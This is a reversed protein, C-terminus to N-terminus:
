KDTVGQMGQVNGEEKRWARAGRAGGRTLGHTGSYAAVHTGGHNGFVNRNCESHTGEGRHMQENTIDYTGKGVETRTCEGM